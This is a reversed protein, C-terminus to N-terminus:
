EAAVAVPDEVPDSVRELLSEPTDTLKLFALTVMPDIGCQGSDGNEWDLMTQRMASAIKRAIVHANRPAAEAFVVVIAGDDTQCAFDIPRLLRGTLRAADIRFRWGLDPPFAFRAISMPVRRAKADAVVRPMDRAFASITYLGTQPDITGRSDLAVIHRRLRTGFSHVRVMPLMHAVIDGPDGSVPALNALRGREITAPMEAVLGIPLDRFRSDAALATLFAEIMSPGFGDGIILGDVDRTNLHRAANEVSLAGILGVKTGVATTLAPYTRGRGAVLVTAEDLPDFAPLQAVDAGNGRLTDIRRLVTAHLIRVRLAAATRAVVQEVGAAADVPLVDLATPGCGKVRAVVPMFPAPAADIAAILDDLVSGAPALEPDAFVVAAPGLQGITAAAEALKCEVVPFAGAGALGAMLKRDHHDSVVLIPGPLSM